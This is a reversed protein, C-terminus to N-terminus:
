KLWLPSAAGAPANLSVRVEGSKDTYYYAGTGTEPKLHLAFNDPSPKYEYTYGPQDLSQRSLLPPVEGEKLLTGLASPYARNVERFTELAASVTKLKAIRAADDATQKAVYAGSAMWFLFVACGCLTLLGILLKVPTQATQRTKNMHEQIDTEGTSRGGSVEELFGM